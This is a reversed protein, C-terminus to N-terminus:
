KKMGIGTNASLGLIKKYHIGYGFNANIGDPLFWNDNSTGDPFEQGRNKNGQLPLSIEFQTFDSFSPTSVQEQSFGITSILLLLILLRQKM